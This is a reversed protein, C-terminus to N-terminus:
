QTALAARERLRRAVGPDGSVTVVDGEARGYLWLLLSSPEAEITADAAERGEHISVRDATMRITWARQDTAITATGTLDPQAEDSWDGALMLDLLEDIGDIALDHDVPTPSAFALQVDVRHVATEHAMRRAWFGVTQDEPWWTWSPASPDAARLTDTLRHHADDFWTIPDRDVPWEPPWPDPKTGGLEICAIKHEYVQATHRVADAVTWGPCSPVSTSLGRAAVQSLLSGDASLAALYQAREM